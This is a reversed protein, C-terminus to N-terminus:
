TQAREYELLKVGSEYDTTAVLRFATTMAPAGQFLPKGQGFVVPNLKLKLKDIRDEGLLWGAFQAGGCLYIDTGEGARLEDIKALQQDRVIRIEKELSADMSRSFIWHEMHEYARAGPSLGYAYGFEYAGRGMIVADYEQLASLYDDVHDGEGVFGDISGDAHAIFGDLTVAVHYCIKRM